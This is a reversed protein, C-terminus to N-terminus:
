SCHIGNHLYTKIETSHKNLLPQINCSNHRSSRLFSGSYKESNHQKGKKVITNSVKQKDAEKSVKSRETERIKTVWTSM